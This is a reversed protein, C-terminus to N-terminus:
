QGVFGESDYGLMALRGRVDDSENAIIKMQSQHAIEDSADLNGIDVRQWIVKGPGNPQDPTTTEILDFNSHKEESLDEFYVNAM